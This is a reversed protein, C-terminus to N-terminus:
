ERRAAPGRSKIAAVFGIVLTTCASVCALVFAARRAAARGEPSTDNRVM